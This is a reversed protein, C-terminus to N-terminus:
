KDGWRDYISVVVSVVISRDAKVVFDYTGNGNSKLSSPSQITLPKDSRCAKQRCVTSLTYQGAERVTVSFRGKKDTTANAVVIGAPKSRVIIDLGPISDIAAMAASGLSLIMAAILVQALTLVM